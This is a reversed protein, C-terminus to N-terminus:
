EGNYSVLLEAGQIQLDPVGDMMAHNTVLKTPQKTYRRQLANMAPVPYFRISPIKFEDLM